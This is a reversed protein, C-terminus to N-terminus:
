GQDRRLARRHWQRSEAEIVMFLTNTGGIPRSALAPLSRDLDSVILNPTVDAFQM